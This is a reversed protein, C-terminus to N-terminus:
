YFLWCNVLLDPREKVKIYMYEQYKNLWEIRLLEKFKIYRKRETVILVKEKELIVIWTLSVLVVPLNDSAGKRDGTYIDM